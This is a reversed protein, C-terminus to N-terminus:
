RVQLGATLLERAEDPTALQTAGLILRHKPYQAALQRLERMEALSIGGLVFIVITRHDTLRARTKVGLLNAGRSFLSGITNSLRQM